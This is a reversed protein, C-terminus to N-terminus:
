DITDAVRAPQLGLLAEAMSQGFETYGRESPHFGDASFFDPQPEFAVPVHVVGPFEDVLTKALNDFVEGRKGIVTRMPEPLLPFIRLPPIGALAIASGPYSKRCSVLLDRMGAMWHATTKLSTIDNVGLSIILYDPDADPLGCVYRQLFASTSFGVHGFAQWDIRVREVNALHAATRGVLASSLQRAGVGAIISDGLALLTKRPGAGVSGSAPGAAAAFRPAMRRVRMAQPLLFPLSMWFLPGQM